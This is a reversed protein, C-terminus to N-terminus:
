YNNKYLEHLYSATKMADEKINEMKLKMDNVVNEKSKILLDLKNLITDSDINEIPICYDDMGLRKSIDETKHEYYLSIFPISYMSSFIISHYRTGIFYDMKSIHAQQYDASQENSLIVINESIMKNESITNVKQIIKNIVSLDESLGFLQPYFYIMANYNTVLFKIIKAFENVIKNNLTDIDHGQGFVPHWRLDIPTIGIKMHSEDLQINTLSIQHFIESKNLVKQIAADATLHIQKGIDLSNVWGHSIRDRVCIVDAKKLIYRHLKRRWWSNFPGMSPAYIMTKKDYKKALFFFIARVFEHRLPYLDGIYPGGPPMVIIDAGQILGLMQHDRRLLYSGFGKYVWRSGNIFYNEIFENSRHVPFDPQFYIFQVTISKILKRITYALAVGQAEDGRNNTFQGIVLIKNNKM